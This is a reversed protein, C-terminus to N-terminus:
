PEWPGTEAHEYDFYAAQVTRHVCHQHFFHRVGPNFLHMVAVPANQDQPDTTPCMDVQALSFFAQKASKMRHLLTVHEHTHYSMQVGLYQATTKVSMRTRRGDARHLFVFPGHVDRQVVRNQIKRCNTGGITILLITKELSIPSGLSELTDLFHGFRQLAAQLQRESKFVEGCHFDDAFVFVSDKIWQPGTLAALQDFFLNTFSSWLVPAARCGQRVGRGTRTEEFISGHQTLYSTQMHWSALIQVLHQNIPLTSLYSFLPQRSVIDFARSIDVFLHIGGCISFVETGMARQHVSRRQNQVLMRAMTCHTAVRRIADLASRHEIYAFQPWVILLPHMEIKFQKTILGLVNKGLPELLAIPRLNGLCCPIKNHKPLFAVWAQRWQPPVFTRDPTWWRRLWQYVIRAIQAALNKWAVGPIFPPAVSKVVPTRAIESALDSETFRLGPFNVTGVDLHEPGDWLEQIFQQTLRQVDTASAPAGTENRIRIRKRPQKPSYRSIIHHISFSDHRTSAVHVEHILDSLQQKRMDKIHTRHRRKLLQYRASHHWRHFLDHLHNNTFMLMQRRHYWKSQILSNPTNDHKTPTSKPFHHQFIPMLQQHLQTVVNGDEHPTLAFHELQHDMESIMDCWSPQQTRWSQRCHMRQRYNCSSLNQTKTFSIPIKKVTCMLPTHVAGTTPLFDADPFYQIQKSFGDSDAHRMIPFDIRSASFNNHYTPPDKANWSNLITFDYRHLLDHLKASDKHLYGTMQHNRWTFHATGVHHRDQSVACNFDGALLLANRNPITGLCQDLTNWCTQRNSRTQVRRDDVFQYGCILDFSRSKFPFRLHILRGPIYEAIGILETPCVHQRVMILIGDSRDSSGSHIMNWKPHTWENTYSWRTETLIVIDAEHRLGWTQIEQLRDQALGGVNTHLVNLRSSPSVRPGECNTTVKQKTPRPTIKQCLSEPFAHYPVLAGKYWAHGTKAARRCARIFSRKSVSQMSNPTELRRQHGYGSPSAIDQPNVPCLQALATGDFETRAQEWSWFLDGEGECKLSPQETMGVFTQFLLVSLLGIRMHCSSTHGSKPGPRRGVKIEFTSRVRKVECTLCHSAFALFGLILLLFIKQNSLQLQHTTELTLDLLLGSWHSFATSPVATDSRGLSPGAEPHAFVFALFSLLSGVGFAAIM